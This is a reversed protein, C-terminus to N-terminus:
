QSEVRVSSLTPVWGRGRDVNMVTTRIQAAEKELFGNPTMAKMDISLYDNLLTELSTHKMSM